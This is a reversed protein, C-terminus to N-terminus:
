NNVKPYKYAIKFMGLAQENKGAQELANAYRFYIDKIIQDTDAGNLSLIAEEFLTLGYTYNEKTVYIDALQALAQGLRINDGLKRAYEVGKEGYDQAAEIKKQEYKLYAMNTYASYLADNDNIRHATELATELVVTAEEFEKKETLALGLM